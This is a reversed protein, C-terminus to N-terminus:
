SHGEKPTPTIPLGGHWRGVVICVWGQRQAWMRARRADPQGVITVHRKGNMAYSIRFLPFGQNDVTRRQGDKRPPLYVTLPYARDRTM